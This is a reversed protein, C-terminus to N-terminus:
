MLGTFPIKLGYPRNSIIASIVLELPGSILSEHVSFKCCNGIRSLGNMVTAVISSFDCLIVDISTRFGRCVNEFFGDVDGKLSPSM